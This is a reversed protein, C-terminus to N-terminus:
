DVLVAHDYVFPANWCMCNIHIHDHRHGNQRFTDESGSEGLGGKTAWEGSLPLVPYEGLNRPEAKPELTGVLFLTGKNFHIIELDNVFGVFTLTHIKPILPESEGTFTPVGLGSTPTGLGNVLV